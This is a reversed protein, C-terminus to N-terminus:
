RGLSQRLEAFVEEAPIGHEPHARLDRLRREAEEAWAQEVDAEHRAELSHLLRQALEARRTESLQLAATQVDQFTM